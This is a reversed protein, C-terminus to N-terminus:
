PFTAHFPGPAASCQPSLELCRSWRGCTTVLARQRREHSRLRRRGLPLRLRHTTSGRTQPPHQTIVIFCINAESVISAGSANQKAPLWRESQSASSADVLMARQDVHALSMTVDVTRHPAAETRRTADLRSRSHATNTLPVLRGMLRVCTAAAVDRGYETSDRGAEKTTRATDVDVVVGRADRRGGEALAGAAPGGNSVRRSPNECRCAEDM